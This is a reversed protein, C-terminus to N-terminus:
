FTWSSLTMSTPQQIMRILKYEKEKIASFFASVLCIHETLTIAKISPVIQLMDVKYHPKLCSMIFTLVMLGDM